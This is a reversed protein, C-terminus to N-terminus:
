SVVRKPRRRESPSLPPSQASANVTPTIISMFKDATYSKRGRSQPTRTKQSSSSTPQSADAIPSIYIELSAVGMPRNRQRPNPKSTASNSTFSRPPSHSPVLLSGASAVSSSSPNAVSSASSGTAAASTSPTSSSPRQRILDRIEQISPTRTKTSLASQNASVSGAANTSTPHLPRTSHAPSEGSSPSEEDTLDVFHSRLHEERTQNILETLTLKTTTRQVHPPVPIPASSPPVTIPPEPIDAITVSVGM